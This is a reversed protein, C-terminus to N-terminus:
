RSRARPLPRQATQAPPYPPLCHATFHDGIQEDAKEAHKHGANRLRHQFLGRQLLMVAKDLLVQVEGNDGGIGHKEAARQERHERIFLERQAHTGSKFAAGIDKDGYEADRKEVLLQRSFFKKRERENEGAYNDEGKSKSNVM